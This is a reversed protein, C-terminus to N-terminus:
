NMREKGGGAEMLQRIEKDGGEEGWEASGLSERVGTERGKM